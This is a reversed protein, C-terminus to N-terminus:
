VTLLLSPVVSVSTTETVTFGSAISALVHFRLVPEVGLVSYIPEIEGNIYRDLFYQAEDETRAISYAIGMSDYKPRGARGVQQKYELVPINRLARWWGEKRSQWWKKAKPKM